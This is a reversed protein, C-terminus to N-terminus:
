VGHVEQLFKFIRRNYEKALEVAEDDKFKGGRRVLSVAVEHPDRFMAIYHPNELHPHIIPITLVTSPTKWGWCLATRDKPSGEKRSLRAVQKAKNVANRISGAMDHRHALIEKESPPDQWTGGAAELIHNNLNIFLSDEYHMRLSYGMSIKRSLVEAVLSTASSHMGLVVFTKVLEKAM